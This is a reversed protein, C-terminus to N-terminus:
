LLLMGCCAHLQKELYRGKRALHEDIMFYGSAYNIPFTPLVVTM